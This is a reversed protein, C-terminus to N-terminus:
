CNCTKQSNISDTIQYRVNNNIAWSKLSKNGINKNTLFDKLPDKKLGPGARNLLRSIANKVGVYGRQRILGRLRKWNFPTVVIIAKIEHNNRHLLEALAIAHLAKDFGATLVIKM